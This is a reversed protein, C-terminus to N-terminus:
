HIAGPVIIIAGSFCACKGGMFNGEYLLMDKNRSQYINRGYGENVPMTLLKMNAAIVKETNKRETDTQTHAANAANWESQNHKVIGTSDHFLISRIINWPQAPAGVEHMLAYFADTNPMVTPKSHRAGHKHRKQKASSTKINAICQQLILCHTSTSEAMHPSRPMQESKVSKASRHRSVNLFFSLGYM